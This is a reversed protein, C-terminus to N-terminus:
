PVAISRAGYATAALVARSQPPTGFASSAQLTARKRAFDTATLAISPYM